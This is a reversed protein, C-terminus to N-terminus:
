TMTKYREKVVAAMMHVEHDKAQGSLGSLRIGHLREIVSKCTIIINKLFHCTGDMWGDAWGGM